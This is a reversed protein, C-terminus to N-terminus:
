TTPATRGTPATLRTCSPAGSGAVCRAYPSACSSAHCSQFTPPPCGRRIARGSSGTLDLAAWGAQEDAIPGVHFWSRLETAPGLPLGDRDTERDVRDVRAFGRFQRDRSDWCGHRYTFDTTLRVKTLADEVAVRRVVQVAFPLTTRWRTARRREDVARLATSSAYESAGM